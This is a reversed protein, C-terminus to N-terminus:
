KSIDKIYLRHFFIGCSLFTIWALSFYIAQQPACGKDINIYAEGNFDPNVHVMITDGVALQKSVISYSFFSGAISYDYSKYLRGKYTYSFSTKVSTTNKRRTPTWSIIKAEATPWSQAKSTKNWKYWGEISPVTTGFTFVYFLAAIGYYRNQPTLM